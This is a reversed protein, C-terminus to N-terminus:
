DREAPLGARVPVMTAWTLDFIGSVALADHGYSQGQDRRGVLAVDKGLM